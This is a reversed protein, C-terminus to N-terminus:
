GPRRTAAATNLGGLFPFAYASGTTDRVTFPAVQQEFAQGQALRTGTLTLIVVALVFWRLSM